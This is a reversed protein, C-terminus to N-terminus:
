YYGAEEHQSYQGEQVPPSRRIDYPYARAGAYMNSRAAVSGDSSTVFSNARTM